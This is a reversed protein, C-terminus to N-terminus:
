LKGGSLSITCGFEQRLRDAYKQQFAELLAESDFTIKATFPKDDREGDLASPDPEGDGGEGPDDPFLDAPFKMSIDQLEQMDWESSLLDWNFEGSETNDLNVYDRLKRAETEKPLVGCPACGYGLERMARLRQNGCIVVYQEGLPYVILTRYSLFEPLRVINRKLAKYDEESIRRPNEPVGPIQGENPVLRDLQINVFHSAFDGGAAPAAPLVAGKKDKRTM